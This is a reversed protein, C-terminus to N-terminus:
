KNENKDIKKLSFYFYLVSLTLVYQVMLANKPGFNDALIGLVVAFISYFLIGALSNLSGMTARQKTIFEDQLLKNKSVQGIGYFFSNVSMLVPSFINSLSIAILNVFVNLNVKFILINLPKFKKIGRGSFHFSIASGFNCLVQAIGIAWTPWLTAIFASRFNWGAEGLGFGIIDSLSILRLKKNSLFNKFAQKTHVFINDSSKDIERVEILQLSLIFCILLPIVSLWMLISFSFYAIVGGFLAAIGLAIQSMSGIKGNYEAFDEIKNEQALNDYLLADNNGSYFSRGLGAFIAGVVLIWYNLGIAFFIGGFLYSLAGFVLTKVRGFKDSVIGTPLEFIAAFLMIISYISIGLAYSGSIKSFYIIGLPAWLEFDTFFSHWRLIKINREFVM